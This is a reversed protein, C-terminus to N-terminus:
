PRMKARRNPLTQSRVEERRTAVECAEPIGHTHYVSCAPCIEPPILTPM